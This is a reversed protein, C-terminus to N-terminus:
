KKWKITCGIAKTEPVSVAQGNLLEDIANAVYHETAQDAHEWNNDIAGIYKVQFVGDNKELLYVHPTKMAGFKKAVDQKADYIYEFPFQKYAAREQMKKYSDDPAVKPDNPNIALVPYGKKAYANHLSIIRDEYAKAYPCHNCTFIVICGKDTAQNPLSVMKGSVSKLKFDNVTSGVKYTEQAISWFGTCILAIITAFWNKM